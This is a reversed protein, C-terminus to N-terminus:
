AKIIPLLHLSRVRAEGGSSAVTVQASHSHAGSVLTVTHDHGGGDSISIGHAHNGDGNISVSHSHDGAGHISIGTGSAGLWIGTASPHTSYTGWATNDRGDGGRNNESNRDRFTHSHGPDHVHHNHGPDGVGHSHHGGGSTSGSHSHHGAATTGGSHSHSGGASTRVTQSSGADSGVAASAGHSHNAVQEGGYEGLGRAGTGRGLDAGRIWEGRLDPLQVHAADGPGYLTGIVAALGPYLAREVLRGDCVLWNAPAAQGAFWQVTGTPVGYVALQAPTIAVDTAVGSQAEATSALRTVGVTTDTAQDVTLLGAANIELPLQPRVGGLLGDTAVPLSYLNAGPQISDLKLKDAASMVGSAGGPVAVSAGVAAAINLEPNVATGTIYIPQHATIAVVNAAALNGLSTWKTGDFVLYDGPAVAGTVGPAYGPLAPGTGENIWIDGREAHAPVVATADVVGKFRIDGQTTLAPVLERHGTRSIELVYLRNEDEAWCLEGEALNLLDNVLTQYAGRVLRIPTRPSPVSM